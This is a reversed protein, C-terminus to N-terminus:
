QARMEFYLSRLQRIASIIVLLSARLRAGVLRKKVVLNRQEDTAAGSTQPFLEYKRNELKIINSLSM